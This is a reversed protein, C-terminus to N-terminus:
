AVWTQSDPDPTQALAQLDKTAPPVNESPEFLRCAAAKAPVLRRAKNLIPRTCWAPKIHGNRYGPACAVREGEEGWKWKHWFRCERCTKGAPGTGAIHAQGLFTRRVAEDNESATLGAGFILHAGM